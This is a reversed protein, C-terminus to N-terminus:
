NQYSEDPDEKFKAGKAGNANIDYSFSKDM